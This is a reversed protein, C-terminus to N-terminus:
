SPTPGLHQDVAASDPRQIPRSGYGAAPVDHVTAVHPERCTAAINAVRGVRNPRASGRQSSLNVFVRDWVSGRGLDGSRLMDYVGSVRWGIKTGGRLWVVAVLLLWRTKSLFIKQAPPAIPFQQM